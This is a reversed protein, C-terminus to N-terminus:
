VVTKLNNSPFFDFNFNQESFTSTYFMSYTLLAGRGTLAINKRTLARPFIGGEVELEVV